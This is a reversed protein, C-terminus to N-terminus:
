KSIISYVIFKTESRIEPKCNINQYMFFKYINTIQAWYTIRVAWEKNFWDIYYYIYNIVHIYLHLTRTLSTVDCYSFDPQAQRVVRPGPIHICQSYGHWMQSPYLCQSVRASISISQYRTRTYVCQCVYTPVFVSVRQPDTHQQTHTLSLHSNTVHYYAPSQALAKIAVNPRRLTYSRGSCQQNLPLRQHISGSNSSGSVFM